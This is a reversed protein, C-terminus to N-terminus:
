NAVFSAGDDLDLNYLANWDSRDVVLGEFNRLHNYKRELQALFHVHLRPEGPDVM